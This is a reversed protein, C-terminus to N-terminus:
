DELKGLEWRFRKMYLCQGNCTKNRIGTTTHPSMCRNGFLNECRLRYAELAKEKERACGEAYADLCLTHLDEYDNGKLLTRHGKLNIEWEM